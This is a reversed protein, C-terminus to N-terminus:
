VKVEQLWVYIVLYDSATWYCGDNDRINRAPTFNWNMM